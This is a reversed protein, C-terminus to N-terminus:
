SIQPAEGMGAALAEKALEAAAAFSKQAMEIRRPLRESIMAELSSRLPPMLELAERLKSNLVGLRTRETGRAKRAAKVVEELLDLLRNEIEGVAEPSPRDVLEDVMALIERAREEYLAPIVPPAKPPAKPKPPRKPKPPPPPPPKEVVPPPPRVAVPTPPRPRPPPAPPGVVLGISLRYSAELRVWRPDTPDAIRYYHRPSPAQPRSERVYAPPVPFGDEIGAWVGTEEAHDFIILHMQNALWIYKSMSARTVGNKLGARILHEKYARYISQVYDMGGEGVLHDRIFEGPPKALLRVPM